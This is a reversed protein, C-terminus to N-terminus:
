LILLYLWPKQIHRLAPRVLIRSGRRRRQVYGGNVQAWETMSAQSVVEHQKVRARICITAFRRRPALATTELTLHERCFPV